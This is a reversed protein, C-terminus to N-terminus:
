FNIKLLIENLINFYFTKLLPNELRMTVNVNKVLDHSWKWRAQVNRYFTQLAGNM